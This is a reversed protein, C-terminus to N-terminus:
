PFYFVGGRVLLEVRTLLSALDVPINTNFGNTRWLRTKRDVVVVDGNNPVCSVAAATANLEGGGAPVCVNQTHPSTKISRNGARGAKIVM